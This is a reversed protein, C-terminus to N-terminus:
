RSQAWQPNRLCRVSLILSFLGSVGVALLTWVFLYDGRARALENAIVKRAMAMHLVPMGLAILSGLLMILYGSKRGALVLTGYLWLGLVLVVTLNSTGRLAMGGERLIDDTMHFILFVISLLSALTLMTNPKM